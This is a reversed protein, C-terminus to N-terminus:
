LWHVYNKGYTTAGNYTIPGAISTNLFTLFQYNGNSCADEVVLLSSHVLTQEPHDPATFVFSVNYVGTQIFSLNRFTYSFGSYFQYSLQLYSAIANASTFNIPVVVGAISMLIDTSVIDGYVTANLALYSGDAVSFNQQLSGNRLAYASPTMSYTYVISSSLNSLVPVTASASLSLSGSGYLSSCQVSLNCPGVALLSLGLPAASTYYLETLMGDSGNTWNVTSLALPLSLSGNASLTCSFFTGLQTANVNSAAAISAPLSAATTPNAHISISNNASSGAVVDPSTFVLQLSSPVSIAYFTFTTNVASIDNWCTVNLHRYGSANTFYQM